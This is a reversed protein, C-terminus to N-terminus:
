FHTNTGFNHPSTSNSVCPPQTDNARVESNGRFVPTQGLIIPHHRIQVVPQSYIM